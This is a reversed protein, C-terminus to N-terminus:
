RGTKEVLAFAPVELPAVRSNRNAQQRSFPHLICNDQVNALGSGGFRELIPKGGVHSKTLSLREPMPSPSIYPLQTISAVQQNAPFSYAADWPVLFLSQDL